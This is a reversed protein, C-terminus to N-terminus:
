WEHFHVTRGQAIMADITAQPLGCGVVGLEAVQKAGLLLDGARPGLGTCGQLGLSRLSPMALLPALGDATLKVANALSLERLAPLHDRLTPGVSDDLLPCADLRLSQLTPPLKELWAADLTICASLDLAQLERGHDCLFGFADRSLKAGTIELRRFPAQRNLLLREVDSADPQAM